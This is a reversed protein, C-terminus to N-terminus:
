LETVMNFAADETILQDGTESIINYQIPAIYIGGGRVTVEVAVGTDGIKRTYSDWHVISYFRNGIVLRDKLSLETVGSPLDETLLIVKLDGLQITGGNVLDSENYATVFGTIAPYEQFGIGNNVLISLPQALPGLFRRYMSVYNAANFAM